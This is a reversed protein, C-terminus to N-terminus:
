QEQKIRTVVPGKEVLPWVNAFGRYLQVPTPFYNFRLLKWIHKAVVYSPYVLAWAFATMIVPGGVESFTTCLWM